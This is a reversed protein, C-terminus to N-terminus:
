RQCRWRLRSVAPDRRSQEPREVGAGARLLLDVMVPNDYLGSWRLAAPATRKPPTSMPARSSSSRRWCITAASPPTSRQRDATAAGAGMELLLVAAVVVASAAVIEYGTSRAPATAGNTWRPEVAASVQRAAHRTSEGDARRPVFTAAARSGVAGGALVLPLNKRAHGNGESMGAGYILLSHDLLTGDGDPTANMKECSTPLSSWRSVRQAALLKPSSTRSQEPPAVDPSACGAHRNGPYARGSFERGFMFTVVRTMDSQYALVQLDFMLRVHEQFSPPIGAPQRRRCSSSRGAAEALQIRREVERVADLISRSSPATARASAAAAADGAKRMLSDLHQPGRAHARAARGCRDDRQRWLATRVRRPSEAGDAAADESDRWSITSSYACHLRRRAAALRKTLKSWRSSWRPWSRTRAWTSRWCRTSPPRHRSRASARTKPARGDPVEDARRHSRRRTGSRRDLGSLVVMKDRFKEIPKLTPTFEFGGGTTKPTWGQMNLGNPLYVVGFRRPSNGAARAIPTFAPVMADFLPLAPDRGVGRLVTRRSLRRRPSMM